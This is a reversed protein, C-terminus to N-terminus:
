NGQCEIVSRTFPVKGSKSSIQVALLNRLMREIRPPTLRNGCRRAPLPRQADVRSGSKSEDWIARQDRAKISRSNVPACFIMVNSVPRAGM